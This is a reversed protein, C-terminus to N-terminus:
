CTEKRNLDALFKFLQDQGKSFMQLQRERTISTPLSKRYLTMSYINKTKYAIRDGNCSGLEAM